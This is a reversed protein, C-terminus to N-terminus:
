NSFKKSQDDATNEQIGAKTENNISSKDKEDSSKLPKNLSFTISNLFKLAALVIRDDAM